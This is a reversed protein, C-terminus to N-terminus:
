GASVIYHAVLSPAVYVGEAAPVFLNLNGVRATAHKYGVVGPGGTFRCMECRYGGCAIAPQWPDHMLEVLKEFFGESVDGTQSPSVTSLWGVAFTAPSSEDALLWPELDGITTM